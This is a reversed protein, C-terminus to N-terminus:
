VAVEAEIAVAATTDGQSPHTLRVAVRSLRRNEEELRELEAIIFFVDGKELEREVRQISEAVAGDGVMQSSGRLSNIRTWAARRHGRTLATRAFTITETIENNLMRVLQAYTESDVGLRQQAASVPDQRARINELALRVNKVVDERNFPKILYQKVGLDAAQMVTDREGHATCFILEVAGFRGDSRLKQAFSFGDMEPMVIDCLILDVSQGENIRNWGELGNTAESVNVELDGLIQKLITRNLRDDDIVLVNARSAEHPTEPIVVEHRGLVELETEKKLLPEVSNVEDNTLQLVIGLQGDHSLMARTRGKLRHLAAELGIEVPKTDLADARAAREALRTNEQQLRQTSSELEAVRARVKDMQQTVSPEVPKAPSKESTKEAPMEQPAPSSASVEAALANVRGAIQSRFIALVPVAMLGLWVVSAATVLRTTAVSSIATSAQRASVQDLRALQGLFAERTKLLSERAESIETDGPSRFFLLSPRLEAEYAQRVDSGRAAVPGSKPLSALKAVSAALASDMRDLDNRAEDDAPDEIVAALHAVRELDLEIRHIVGSLEGHTQFLGAPQRGKLLEVLLVPVSIGLVVLVTIILMLKLQRQIAPTQMARAPVFEKSDPM